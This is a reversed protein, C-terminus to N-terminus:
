GKRRQTLYVGAGFLLAVFWWPSAWVPIQGKDVATQLTDLSFSFVIYLVIGLAVAGVKAQRPKVRTLGVAWACLVLIMVAPLTREFVESRNASGGSQWLDQTTRAERRNTSFDSEEYPIHLAYRQYSTRDGEASNLEFRQQLGEYLTLYQRQDISEIRAIPATNVIMQDDDIRVVFLNRLSEDAPNASRAYLTADRQQLSFFEGAQVIETLPRNQQSLLFNAMGREAM